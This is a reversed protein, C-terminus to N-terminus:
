KFDNKNSVLNNELLENYHKININSRKIEDLNYPNADYLKLIDIDFYEKFMHFKNPLIINKITDKYLNLLKKIDTNSISSSNDNKYLNDLVKINYNCDKFILYNEFLMANILSKNLKIENNIVETLIRLIRLYPNCIYIDVIINLEYKSKIYNSIKKNYFTLFNLKKKSRLKKMLIINIKDKSLNEIINKEKNYICINYRNDSFYKNLLFKRGCSYTIVQKINYM